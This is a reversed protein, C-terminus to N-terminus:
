KLKALGRRLYQSLGLSKEAVYEVDSEDEASRAHTLLQEFTAEPDDGRGLWMLAILERRADLSLAAISAVLTQRYPLRENWRKLEDSAKRPKTLSTKDSQDIKNLAEVAEIVAAVQEKTLHKLM